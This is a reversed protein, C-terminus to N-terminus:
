ARQVWHWPPLQRFAAWVTSKMREASTCPLLLRPALSARIPPSAAIVRQVGAVKATVVSMHASAVLPYKGGPVYCGVSDVPINKHGLIVGPLTEIELDRISSRQAEAFNRVQQQAFRIDEIDQPSLQLICNEIDVDTLRFAPPNWKDFKESLDRLAAEGRKEIDQIIGAVINRVKEEDASTQELTRGTKLHRAM